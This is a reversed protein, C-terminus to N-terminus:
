TKALCGHEKELKELEQLVNSGCWTGENRHFEVRDGDWHNPVEIEYEVTMKVVAKKQILVCDSLHESGIKQLCYFCTGDMRAPRQAKETVIFM